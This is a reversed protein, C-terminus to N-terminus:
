VLSVLAEATAQPENVLAFHNAALERYEWAPDAKVQGAIRVTWDEEATGKDKTCYIFARPLAAADPNGLQIPQTWAALPHPTLKSLAWEADAPDGILGTFFAEVDADVPVLGPTGAAWGAGVLFAVAGARDEESAISVDLDSQGDAPVEADLYVLRALRQAVREAVGTTVMGASSHAVLTVDRLDAFELVNVVDTVHTDLDIGPDALHVREGLGTLTTAYVDHGAQRLLPVVKDWIWGGAFSGSVLVLTGRKEQAAVPFPAHVALAAAIGGAGLRVASRRSILTRAAGTSDSARLAPQITRVLIGEANHSQM